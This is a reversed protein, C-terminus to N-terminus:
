GEYLAQMEIKQTIQNMICTHSHRVVQTKNIRKAQFLYRSIIQWICLEWSIIWLQFAIFPKFISILNFKKQMQKRVNNGFRYLNGCQYTISSCIRYVEKWGVDPINSLCKCVDGPTCFGQDYFSLKIEISRLFQLVPHYINIWEM